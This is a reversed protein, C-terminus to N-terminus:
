QAMRTDGRLSRLGAGGPHGFLAVCGEHPHQLAPSRVHICYPNHNHQLAPSRVHICYPNHNHQLAPSRVHICYPNYNHQLAPSRGHICYPNHNHQLAPSGFAAGWSTNATIDASTEIRGDIMMQGMMMQGM